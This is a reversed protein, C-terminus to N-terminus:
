APKNEPASHTFKLRHSAGSDAGRDSQVASEIQRQAETETMSLLSWPVQVVTGSQLSEIRLADQHKQSKTIRITACDVDLATLIEQCMSKLAQAQWDELVRIARIHIQDATEAAVTVKVHTTNIEVQDCSGSAISVLREHGFHLVKMGSRLRKLTPLTPARPLENGQHKTLQEIVWRSKTLIHKEAAAISFDASLPYTVTLEAGRIGLKVQKVRQSPVCRFAVKTRGIWVVGDM